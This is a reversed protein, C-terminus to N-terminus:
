TPLEEGARVFWTCRAGPAPWGQDQEGTREEHQRHTPAAWRLAQALDSVSGYTAGMVGGEQSARSGRGSRRVHDATEPIVQVLIGEVRRPDDNSGSWGMTQM